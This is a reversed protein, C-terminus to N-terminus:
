IDNRSVEAWNTGDFILRIISGAKLICQGNLDLGTGHDLTLTNTDSRGILTLEDGLTSGSTVIQPNATIDIAGGSGQVFIIEKSVGLPTIGSTTINGPSARTNTILGSIYNVWSGNEYLRIKKTTSNHYHDGNAAASGKATVFAADSAYSIDGWAYLASESPADVEEGEQMVLYLVEGVM